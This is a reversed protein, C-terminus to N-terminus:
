IWIRRESGNPLTVKMWFGGKTESLESANLKRFNNENITKM